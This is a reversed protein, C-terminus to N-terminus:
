DQLFRSTGFVPRHSQPPRSRLIIAVRGIRSPFAAAFKSHFGFVAARMSRITGREAFVFERHDGSKNKSQAQQYHGRSPQHDPPQRSIPTERKM